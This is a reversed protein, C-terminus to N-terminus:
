PEPRPAGPARVGGEVGAAAADNAIEWSPPVLAVLSASSAARSPPAVVARIVPQLSGEHADSASRTKTVGM